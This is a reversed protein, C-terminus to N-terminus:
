AAVKERQALAEELLVSIQASIDRVDAKASQRLRERLEPSMTITLREKM